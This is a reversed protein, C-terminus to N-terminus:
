LAELSIAKDARMKSLTASSLGTLKVLSNQSIGREDILDWLKYFYFMIRM